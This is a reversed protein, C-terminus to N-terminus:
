QMRASAEFAAAAPPLKLDVREASRNSTTTSGSEAAQRSASYRTVITRPQIMDGLLGVRLRWRAALVRTGVGALRDVISRGFLADSRRSIDRVRARETDNVANASIAPLILRYVRAQAELQQLRTELCADRHPLSALHEYGRLTTEVMRLITSSNQEYDQRFARRIWREPDGPAFAPHHYALHKQGHNEAFPLDKKLLGRRRHDEYLATVPVPTLLMFQVMDAELGVLFDIDQQINDPTHHEMCLIGSGLVTIGRDRLAQVLRRPRVDANKAFAHRRSASEFGIWVMTVGLRVMNDIGFAEIAEASSFIHFRFFRRHREMARLLGMARETDKLFNEDMLFFSDTGRADAIRRATSFLAEGTEVFPTYTKGFFHSTSCFSCGNVCGVGPALLSGAKGVLPVGLISMHEASPIIPHYIPAAPDQGLHERLWRIGEGRVVHDCEILDEVGEIAAGHGGVVIEAEPARHRVIRAMERAKDFNTMIFSIGVIDYGGRAVEREFRAKSPFDLVTVDADINEALFYLGFSRHHFRLSAVGQAKTVQNHFLEMINEKRGFEDDVGYPGFVSSLLIKPPTRHESDTSM